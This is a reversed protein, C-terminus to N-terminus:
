KASESASRHPFAIGTVAQFHRRLERDIQKMAGELRVIEEPVDTKLPGEIKTESRQLTVWNHPPLIPILAVEPFCTTLEDDSIRGGRCFFFMETGEPATLEFSRRQGPYILRDIKDVVDRIPELQKLEGAGNFWIVV